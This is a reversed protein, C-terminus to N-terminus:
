ATAGLPGPDSLAPGHRRPDRSFAYALAIVALGLLTLGLLLLIFGAGIPQDDAVLAFHCLLRGLATVQTGLGFAFLGASPTVYHGVTLLVGAAFPPVVSLVKQVTVDQDAYDFLYPVGMMSGLDLVVPIVLLMATILYLARRM